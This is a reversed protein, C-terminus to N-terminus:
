LELLWALYAHARQEAFADLLLIVSAQLAMGAGAGQWASGRTSLVLLMLGGMLVIIEIWRNTVFGNLVTQMRPIEESSIRDPQAAVAHQVRALDGPSRLWVSAGVAIQILAIALLPWAAGRWFAGHRWGWIAVGIALLGIIVFGLGEAREANFYYVANM